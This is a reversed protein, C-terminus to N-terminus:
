YLQSLSSQTQGGTAQNNATQQGGQTVSNGNGNVDAVNSEHQYSSGGYGAANANQSAYANPGYGGGGYYGGQPGAQTLSQATSGGQASNDSFQPGGQTLSNGNGTAGGGNFQSAHSQGGYASADSNMSAVNSSYPGYPYPQYQRAHFLQSLGQKTEGGQGANTAGQAGGETLSNGFGSVVGCNVQGQASHGGFGDASAGQGAFGYQRRLLQSGTQTTQGGAGVNAAGQAGGDTVSNGAGSIVACNKQLQSSAGGVGNASAGQGLAAYQRRHPLDEVGNGQLAHVGHTLENDSVYGVLPALNRMGLKQTLSETVSGGKASNDAMQAGGATVSNGYGSVVPANYQGQYSSGGYADASGQQGAYGYSPPPAYYPANRRHGQTLSQVLSGGTAANDASQAGGATVSNGYGSVVPANVQGQYSHGGYADASAQQSAYGQTGPWYPANRRQAGQTASQGVQGGQAANIAEQAGGATVSNGAGSVVPANLQGQASHGGFADASGHQAAAASQGPFGRRQQHGQALTETIGGGQAGNFANQGGGSTLSNGAGSSVPRSAAGQASSGGFADSQAQQKGQASQWPALMRRNVKNGHGSVAGGDTGAVENDTGSVAGKSAAAVTNNTGSVAGHVSHGSEMGSLIGHPTFPFDPTPAKKPAAKVPKGDAQGQYSSQGSLVGTSASDKGSQVGSVVSQEISGGKASNDSIQAGGSTQSEKGNDGNNVQVDSSDGGHADASAVQSVTSSAQRRQFVQGQTAGTFASQSGPTNVSNGPDVQSYDNQVSQVAHGPYSGTSKSQLPAAQVSSYAILGAAIVAFHFRM